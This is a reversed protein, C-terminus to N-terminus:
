GALVPASAVVFDLRFLTLGVENTVTMSWDEGLRITKASDAIVTGAFRIAERQAEAWTALEVGEKDPYNAGDHVHFFFRPM